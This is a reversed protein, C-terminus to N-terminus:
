YITANRNLTLRGIGGEIDSNNIIRYEKNYKTWFSDEDLKDISCIALGYKEVAPLLLRLKVIVKEKTDIVNGPNIGSALHTEISELRELLNDKEVTKPQINHAIKRHGALGQETKFPGAGCDPELCIIDKQTKTKDMNIVEREASM